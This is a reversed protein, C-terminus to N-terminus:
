APQVAPTPTPRMRVQPRDLACARIHEPIRDGDVFSAIAHGTVPALTVGLTGHGTAVLLDEQGPVPGIYPVSDPTCPRIGSWVQSRQPQVQDLGPFFQSALRLVSGLRREAAIRSNGVFDFTGSFRTGGEFPTCAVSIEDIKVPHNLQPGSRTTVSVGRGGELSLKHGALKLIRASAIGAAVVVKEAKYQNDYTDIVWTGGQKQLGRVQQKEVVTAGADRLWRVLGQTMSEPRISKEDILHVGGIIDPNLDPELERMRAASVEVHRGGYGAEVIQQHSQLFSELAERRMYPMLLGDSRYEAKIDAVMPGFLELTQENLAVISERAKASNVASSNRYFMMVWKLFEANPLMGFRIRSDKKLLSGLADPIAGPSNFPQSLSPVIWGANGESAGKGCTDREIVTVQHGAKTLYYASSLGIVGGGIVAIEM